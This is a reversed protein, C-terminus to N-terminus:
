PVLAERPRDAGGDHTSIERLIALLGSAAERGDGSVPDTQQTENIFRIDEINITALTKKAEVYYSQYKTAGVLNGDDGWGM